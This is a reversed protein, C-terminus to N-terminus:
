SFCKVVSDYKELKETLAVECYTKFNENLNEEFKLMENKLKQSEMERRENERAAEDLYGRLDTKKLYTNDAYNELSVVSTKNSKMCIDIDFQKICNRMDDNDKGYRAILLKFEDVIPIM